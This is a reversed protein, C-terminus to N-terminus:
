EVKVGDKQLLHIIQERIQELDSRQALHYTRRHLQEPNHLYSELQDATYRQHVFNPEKLTLEKLYDYADSYSSFTQLLTFGWVEKRNVQYAGSTSGKDNERTLRYISFM